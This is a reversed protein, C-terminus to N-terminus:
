NSPARYDHVRGGWGMKWFREVRGGVLRESYLALLTGVVRQGDRLMFGHNPAEVKWPAASCSLEWPVRDNHNAHLFDAVAAVDADTIPTLEVKMDRMKRAQMVSTQAVSPTQAPDNRAQRQGHVNRYADDM